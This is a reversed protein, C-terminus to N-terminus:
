RKLSRDKGSTATPDSSQTEDGFLASRLNGAGAGLFDAM